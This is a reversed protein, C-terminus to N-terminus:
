ERCADGAHSRLELLATSAEKRNSASHIARAVLEKGVGTEGLVLVTFDSRAVLEIERRLHEM